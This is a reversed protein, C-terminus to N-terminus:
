TSILASSNNHLRRIGPNGALTMKKSFEFFKDFFFNYKNCSNGGKGVTPFSRGKGKGVTPFPPPLSVFSFSIFLKELAVASEM